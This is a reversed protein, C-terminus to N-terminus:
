KCGACGCEITREEHPIGNPQGDAYEYCARIEVALENRASAILGLGRHLDREGQALEADQRNLEDVRAQNICVMKM